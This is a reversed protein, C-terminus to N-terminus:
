RWTKKKKWRRHGRAGQEKIGLYLSLVRRAEALVPPKLFDEIITYGDREIADIHHQLGFAM